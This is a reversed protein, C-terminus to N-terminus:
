GPGCGRGHQSNIVHKTGAWKAALSGYFYPYTNHTHLIDIQNRILFDKLKKIAGWKGVQPLEVSQVEYGAERLDDAPQGLGELAVFSLDFHDGAHFRAFDVLLRELGGTNLGMSLHCIKLKRYSAAPTDAQEPTNLTVPM